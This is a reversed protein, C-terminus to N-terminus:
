MLRKYIELMSEMQYRLLWAANNFDPEAKIVDLLRPFYQETEKIMRYIRERSLGWCMTTINNCRDVCKVLAAKPNSAIGEYYATMIEDRNEDTTKVHSLLRVIERTEESVPLENISKGCDEIVDHLLCAAIVQDDTISMSLVHCAMNLPHYIYPVDSKKRKQDKHANAAYDVAKRTDELALTKATAKVYTKMHQWDYITEKTRFFSQREEVLASVSVDFLRALRILKETDPRYEDREWSSVAQFTVELQDAVQEQTLKREERLRRINSGISM